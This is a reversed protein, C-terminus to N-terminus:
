NQITSFVAYKLNLTSLIEFANLQFSKTWQVLLKLATITNLALITDKNCALFYIIQFSFFFM